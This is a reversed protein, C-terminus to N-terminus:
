VVQEPSSQVTVATGLSHSLQLPTSNHSWWCCCCCTRLSLAVVSVLSQSRLSLYNVQTAKLNTLSVAEPSYFKKKKKPRGWEQQPFETHYEVASSSVQVQESARRKVAAATILGSRTVSGEDFPTHSIRSNEAENSLSSSTWSVIIVVRLHSNIRSRHRPPSFKDRILYSCYVATKSAPQSTPSISWQRADFNILEFNSSSLLLHQHHFKWDLSPRRM